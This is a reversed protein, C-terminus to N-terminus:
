GDIGKITHQTRESDSDIARAHGALGREVLVERNGAVNVRDRKLEARRVRVRVRGRTIRHRPVGTLLDTPLALFLWDARRVNCPLRLEAVQPDLIHDASIGFEDDEHHVVASQGGNLECHLGDGAQFVEHVTHKPLYTLANAPLRPLLRLFVPGTQETQHHVLHVQPPVLFRSVEMGEAQESFVGDDIREPVGELTQPLRPNTGLDQRDGSLLPAIHFHRENM